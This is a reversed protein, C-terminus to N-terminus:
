CTSEIYLARQNEGMEWFLMDSSLYALLIARLQSHNHSHKHAHQRTISQYKGHSFCDLKFRVCVCASVRACVCVKHLSGPQTKRRASVLCTDTQTESVAIEGWSSWVEGSCTFKPEEEASGFSWVCCPSM